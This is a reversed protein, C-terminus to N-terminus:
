FTQRFSNNAMLTNQYCLLSNLDASYRGSAKDLSIFYGNSKSIHILELKICVYVSSKVVRM